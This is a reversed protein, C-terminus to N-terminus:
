NKLGRRKKLADVLVFPHLKLSLAREEIEKYKEPKVGLNFATWGTELDKVKLGRMREMLDAYEVPKLGGPKIDSWVLNLNRKLWEKNKKGYAKVLKEFDVGYEGSLDHLKVFDDPKIYPYRASKLGLKSYFQTFDSGRTLLFLKRALEDRAIKGVVSENLDSGLQFVSKANLKGVVSEPFVELARSRLVEFSKVLGKRAASGDVTKVMKYLDNFDVGTNMSAEFVDRAVVDSRYKKFAKLTRSVISSVEEVREKKALLRDSHAELSNLFRLKEASTEFDRVSEYLDRFRTHTRIATVLVERAIPDNKFKYYDGYNEVIFREDKTNYANLPSNKKLDVELNSAKAIDSDSTNGGRVSSVLLGFAIDDFKKHWGKEILDVVINSVESKPIKVGKYYINFKSKKLKELVEKFDGGKINKLQAIHANLFELPTEAGYEEKLKNLVEFNELHSPLPVKKGLM